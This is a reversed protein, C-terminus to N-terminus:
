QKECHYYSEDQISFKMTRAVEEEYVVDKNSYLHCMVQVARNICRILGTWSITILLFLAPAMVIQLATSIAELVAFSYKELESKDCHNEYTMGCLVYDALAMQFEKAYASKLTVTMGNLITVFVLVATMLLM